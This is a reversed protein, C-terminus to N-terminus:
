AAYKIAGMLNIEAQRDTRCHLCGMLARVIVTFSL